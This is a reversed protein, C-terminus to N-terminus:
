RVTFAKEVEFLHFVQAHCIFPDICAPTQM